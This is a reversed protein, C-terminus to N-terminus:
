VDWGITAVLGGSQGDDGEVTSVHIEALPVCGGATGFVAAENGFPHAVVARHWGIM